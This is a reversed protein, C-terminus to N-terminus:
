KKRCNVNAIMNTVLSTAESFLVATARSCHPVYKAALQVRGLGVQIDMDTIPDLCPLGEPFRRHLDLVSLLVVRRTDAGRLDQAPM